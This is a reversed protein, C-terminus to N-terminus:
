KKKNKKGGKKKKQYSKSLTIQRLKAREALAANIDPPIFDLGLYFECAFLLDSGGLRPNIAQLGKYKIYTVSIDKNKHL